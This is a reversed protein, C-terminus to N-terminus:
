DEKSDQERGSKAQDLNINQAFRNVEEWDYEYNEDVPFQDSPYILHYHCYNIVWNIEDQLTSFYEQSLPISKRIQEDAFYKSLIATKEKYDISIEGHALLNRNTVISDLKKYFINGDGKKKITPYRDSYNKILSKVIDRKHGFSFFQQHLVMKSFAEGGFKNRQFFFWQIVDELTQEVDICKALYEGRKPIIGKLVDQRIREYEEKSYLLKGRDDFSNIESVGSGM